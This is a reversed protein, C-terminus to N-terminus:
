KVHGVLDPDGRPPDLLRHHRHPRSPDWAHAVEMLDTGVIRCAASCASSRWAARRRHHRVARARRHRAGGVPRARRRRDDRLAPAGPARAALSRCRRWRNGRHAPFLHPAKRQYEERAGTRMGVQFVREPAVMDMVRAMASAYNYREGLFEERLDPHADLQLIRLEPFAPALVEIVPVTATHDGGLM